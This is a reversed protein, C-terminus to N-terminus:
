KERRNFTELQSKKGKLFKTRFDMWYDILGLVSVFIFLQVMLFVVLLVQWFLGVRFSLLVQHVIGLGQFFFFAMSINLVNVALLDLWKIDTGGIAPILSAIFIWILAGNARLNFLQTRFRSHPQPNIQIRSELIVAAYVSLMWLIVILSPMQGMIKEFTLGLQPQASLVPAMWDSAKKILGKGELSFWIGLAGTAFCSTVLFSCVSSWVLNLGLEEFECFLGIVLAVSLFMISLVLAYPNTLGIGVGIAGFLVTVLWYFGRGMQSRVAKLAPAGLFYTLSTLAFAWLMWSLGALNKTKTM